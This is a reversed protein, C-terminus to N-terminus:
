LIVFRPRKALGPRVARPDPSASLPAMRPVRSVDACCRRHLLVDLLCVAVQAFPAGIVRPLQFLQFFALFLAFAQKHPFEISLAPLFPLARISAKTRSREFRWHTESRFHRCAGGAAASEAAKVVFAREAAQGQERSSKKLASAITYYTAASGAFIMAARQVCGNSMRELHHCFCIWFVPALEASASSTRVATQLHRRKASCPQKRLM